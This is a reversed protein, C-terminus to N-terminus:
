LLEPARWAAVGPLGRLLLRVRLLLESARVPKLVFDDAGLDIVAKEFTSNSELSTVIMVPLTPQNTKRINRLFDLGDMEDGLLDCIILDPSTGPKAQGIHSLAQEPSKLHSTQYGYSKLVTCLSHEKEPGDSDIVLIHYITSQPYTAYLTTEASFNKGNTDLM